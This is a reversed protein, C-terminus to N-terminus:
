ASDDELLELLENSAMKQESIENINNSSIDLLNNLGIKEEQYSNSCNM